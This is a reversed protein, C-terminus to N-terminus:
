GTVGYLESVKKLIRPYMQMKESILSFSGCSFFGGCTCAAAVQKM